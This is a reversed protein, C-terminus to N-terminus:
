LKEDVERKLWVNDVMEAHGDRDLSELLKESVGEKEIEMRRQWKADIEQKAVNLKAEREGTHTHTYTRAHTRAHTHTYSYQALFVM